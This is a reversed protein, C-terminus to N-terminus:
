CGDDPGVPTDVEELKLVAQAGPRDCVVPKMQSGTSVAIM